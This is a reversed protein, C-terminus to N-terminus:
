DPDYFGFEESGDPFKKVSMYNWQEVPMFPREGKVDERYIDEAVGGFGAVLEYGEKVTAFYFSYKWYSRFNLVADRFIAIVQEKTLTM